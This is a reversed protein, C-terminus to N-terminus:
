PEKEELGTLHGQREDAYQSKALANERPPELTATTGGIVLSRRTAIEHLWSLTIGIIGILACAAVASGALLGLASSGLSDPWTATANPYKWHDIKEPGWLRNLGIGIVALSLIEVTAAVIQWAASEFWKAATLSECLAGRLNTNISIAIMVIGCLLALAKLEAAGRYVEFWESNAIALSLVMVVFLGYGLAMFAFSPFAKVRAIIAERRQQEASPSKTGAHRAVSVIEALPIADAKPAEENESAYLGEILARNEPKKFHEGLDADFAAIQELAAKIKASKASGRVDSEPRARDSARAAQATTETEDTM